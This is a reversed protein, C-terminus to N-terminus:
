TRGNSQITVAEGLHTCVEAPMGFGQQITLHNNILVLKRAVPLASEQDIIGHHDIATRQDHAGELDAGTTRDQM